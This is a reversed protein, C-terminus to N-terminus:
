EYQGLVQGDRRDGLNQYTIWEIQATLFHVSGDAFAFQAGDGTHWSFACDDDVATEMAAFTKASVGCNIISPLQTKFLAPEDSQPAGIWVPWDNSAPVYASEGFAITKSTGDTIDKLRVRTFGAALGDAVKFFMGRDGNGNCAKYDSTAYGGNIGDGPSHTFLQSSPCRFVSLETSGGPVPARTASWTAGLIGPRDWPSVDPENPLYSRKIVDYLSQEELFPLLQTAWGYGDDTFSQQGGYVGKPFVNHAGHFNL